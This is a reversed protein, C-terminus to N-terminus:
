FHGVVLQHYTIAAAHDDSRREKVELAKRYWREADTFDRREEAVRGLQHYTQAAGHEDGLREKVELSKRHWREAADFDRREQAIIGLQHYATAESSQGKWRQAIELSRFYWMEASAYDRRNLAINGRQGLMRSLFKENGEQRGLEVLEAVLRDATSYDRTNYAYAALAQTLAIDAVQIKLERATERAAHFNAGHIAFGGRQEHLPRPALLVALQAMMDVFTRLWTERTAPNVDDAPASRLFGTLAPHMEWIGPNLPYLLGASALAGLCDDVAARTWSADVTQAMVELFPSDVFGEHQGLAILLPRWQAPLADTAFRLTACLRAENEDAASLRLAEFNKQLAESLVAPTQKELRPLIVRMALPHGNLLKMLGALAKDARDPKRGLDALIANAFEWREEGDLGGLSVLGRNTTGLWDETSRSTILVKTKGGRLRALFDRLLNCDEDPLNGALATGPVGKASEFNDWVIRLPRERCARELANLKDAVSLTRFQEGFLPVGLANFVYEASRVNAFGVWVVGDDIGGTQELWHLFGRVLTTKGVGGMGSVLVGAAPRRLARELALLAGDRGVFGYPNGADRAEAPLRPPREEKPKATKVFQLDPAEQQYLVPVLWDELPFTGRACVRQPRSRMQQRGARVADPLQGHEFLRQYFAPLFQQAGSVYLSYAMATVSRTGARLLAAAVSAFPDDARNDVMASQCANLVVAPVATEGLLDNLQEAAIADASGDEREFILRGQVPAQYLHPTAAAPAGDGYAGHGDFHLIHYFNPRERLHARLRDFTPPRLVHVYAPVEPRAAWEALPRAISRFRVDNDYPRAIVLLINVRDKPLKKAKAPDRAGDLRREVQCAHALRCGARADYLAEWPWALVAPDNSVIQLHLDAYAAETAADFWGGAERTDFLADFAQEGWRRLARQVLEAHTTEPDFPYDLFQELYWKLGPLLAVGPWGEVPFGVPSPVEVAERSMKGDSLRQVLFRAPDSDPVQRIQLIM